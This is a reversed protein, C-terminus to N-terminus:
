DKTLARSHTANNIRASVFKFNRGRVLWWSVYCCGRSAAFATKKFRQCSHLVSIVRSATQSPKKNGKKRPKIFERCRKRGTLFRYRAAISPCGCLLHTGFYM